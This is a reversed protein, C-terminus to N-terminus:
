DLATRRLVRIRQAAFAPPTIEIYEKLRWSQSGPYLGRSNIILDPMKGDRLPRYNKGELEAIVDDFFLGHPVHNEARNFGLLHTCGVVWVHEYQELYLNTLRGLSYQDDLSLVSGSFHRALRQSTSNFFMTAMALSVLTVPMRWDGRVQGLLWGLSAGTAVAFYPQVLLLDPHAQHDYFTFAMGVHAAVWFAVWGPAAKAARWTRRPATLMAVWMVAATGAAAMPLILTGLREPRGENLIFWIGQRYNIPPHSTKTPLIYTQYLQEWLAGHWIYYSEYALLLLLSTWALRWVAQRRQQNMLAAVGAGLLAIAGPQWCLFAAMGTFGATRYRGRAVALPTWLLFSVLFVKPRLGMSGEHFLAWLTLMALGSLLGASVSGTLQFALLWAMAVAVATFLVSAVRAARVDDIGVARGARIAMGSIMQPLQNKPGVQSIHPPVGSAIRESLYFYLQTDALLPKDLTRYQLCLIIGAVMCLTVGLTRLLRTRVTM